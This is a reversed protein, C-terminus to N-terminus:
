KYKYKYAYIHTSQIYIYLIYMHIMHEQTHPPRRFLRLVETPFCWEKPRVIEDNFWVMGELIALPALPVSSVPVLLSLSMLQRHYPHPRKDVYRRMKRNWKRHCTALNWKWPMMNLTNVMLAYICVYMCVYKCVYM